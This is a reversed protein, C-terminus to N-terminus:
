AGVKQSVKHKRLTSIKLLSDTLSDTFRKAAQEAFVVPPMGLSTHIRKTNYYHIQRAVIEFLEALDSVRAFSPLENKLTAFFREMFGNQWPSGRRSASMRIGYNDCLRQHRESLYESGQDSHLINPAAHKSLASLLAACILEATHAAGLQWGVIQRTHLDLVVALYCFSAQHRIFTFDQAWARVQKDAMGNYRMGDQPREVDKFSAYPKLLNAPAIVEASSRNYRHKRQMSQAKIGALNRIRRCKKESWGLAM